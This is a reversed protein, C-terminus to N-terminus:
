VAPWIREWIAPYDIVYGDDDVPLEAVFGSSLSEYRYRQQGGADDLRTYRQRFSKFELTPVSIYVVSIEQSQGPALALRRIPLTNTLPTAMIDVDICGQLEGLPQGAGDRWGGVGDALLQVTHVGSMESEASISLERVHWRADSSLVYTLRLPLGQWLRLLTSTFTVGSTDGTIRVDEVGPEDVSRWLRQQQRMPTTQDM